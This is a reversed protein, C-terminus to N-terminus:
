AALIAQEVQLQLATDEVQGLLCIRIGAPLRGERKLLGLAEPILHMRKQAMKSIKKETLEM